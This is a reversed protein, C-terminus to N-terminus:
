KGSLKKMHEVRQQVLASTGIDKRHFLRGRVFNTCIESIRESESITNGLGVVGVSRSGSTFTEGGKEYVSAYFVKGGLDAIKKEDVVVKQDREPTTPYGIPVLYKCVTALNKFSVQGLNGDTIGECVKVFDSSLTCLVNMAEPDGFRSNYEILKPGNKTLMFQGYLIGKYEGGTEDKIARVTKEIMGLASQVDGAKVFPLLHNSDSYSGMGGTNPGSDGDFARKHDQVLPMPKVHTGDVFCQLTFEEGLLKEEIIVRGKKLEQEAYALAEEITKVHEGSVMVGKGGTLGEPKVVYDGLKKMYERIGQSNEFVRFEPNCPIKYKQILNRMFVKSSEIRAQSQKPGVCPIQAKALEDAVGAALPSEPGIVAFEPKCKEAFARVEKPNHTDGVQIGKSIKAIGPNVATM